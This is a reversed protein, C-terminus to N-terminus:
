NKNMSVTTQKQQKNIQFLKKIFKTGVALLTFNLKTWKEYYYLKNTTSEYVVPIVVELPAKLIGLYQNDLLNELEKITPYIKPLNIFYIFVKHKLNQKKVFYKKNIQQIKNEIASLENENCFSFTYTISDLFPFSKLTKTYQGNVFDM